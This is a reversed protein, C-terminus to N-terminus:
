RVFDHFMDNYKIKLRSTVEKWIKNHQIINYKTKLKKIQPIFEHNNTMKLLEILIYNYSLFYKRNHEICLDRLTMKVQNFKSIIFQKNASNLKLSDLKSVFYKQRSYPKIIQCVSNWDPKAEYSDFAEKCVGCKPCVWYTDLNYLVNCPECKFVSVPPTTYRNPKM